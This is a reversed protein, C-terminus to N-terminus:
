SVHLIAAICNGDADALPPWWLRRSSHCFFAFTKLGIPGAHRGNRLQADPSFGDPPM